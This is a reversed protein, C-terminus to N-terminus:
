TVKVWRFSPKLISVNNKVKEGMESLDHMPSNTQAITLIYKYIHILIKALRLQSKCIITKGQFPENINSGSIVNISKKSPVMMLVLGTFVFRGSAKCLEPCGNM